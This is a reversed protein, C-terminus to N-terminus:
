FPIDSSDRPTTYNDQRSQPADVNSGVFHVRDAIIETSKRQEGEKNTYESTKIKGEVAVQKGKKCFRAVTEALRGFCTVTHWDTVKVWEGSPDKKRDNTALRFRVVQGAKTDRAEPDAGLHGLLIARNM